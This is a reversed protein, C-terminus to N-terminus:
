RLGVRGRISTNQQLQRLAQQEGRQAGQMAAQQMGRQFQDATVYDVSNIREVTYRVDIAGNVPTANGGAESTDGGSGAIVGEGRAGRSYRSMAASMKSSPIVYESEGGEGIIANTPGTVFGGQAMLSPMGFATAGGADFSSFANSGGFGAGGAGFGGGGGLAGGFIKLAQQLVFMQIMKTIIQAAMDLFHDAVSQFFSALAEKATMSGDIIGKFSDSFATGISEAAKTVQNVPDLLTNLEGQVKTIEERTRSLPSAAAEAGQVATVAKTQVNGRVAGLQGFAGGKGFVGEDELFKKILPDKALESLKAILADVTATAVSRAAEITQLEAALGPLVGTNILNSYTQKGEVLKTQEQTISNLQTLLASSPSLIQEALAIDEQKLANIRKLNVIQKEYTALQEAAASEAASANGTTDTRAPLAAMGPLKSVPVSAFLEVLKQRTSEIENINLVAADEVLKYFVKDKESVNPDAGFKQARIGEVTERLKLVNLAALQSSKEADFKRRSAADNQKNIAENIRAIKIQSDENLRAIRRANDIKARLIALDTKQLQLQIQKQAAAADQEVALRGTRYQNVATQVTNLLEANPDGSLAANVGGTLSRQKNVLQAAKIEEDQVRKIYDLDQERMKIRADQLRRIAALDDDAQARSADRVMDQYQQEYQRKADAVKRNHDKIANALETASALALTQEQEIFTRNKTTLQQQLKSRLKATGTPADRRLAEQAQEFKLVREKAAAQKQAIVLEEKSKGFAAAVITNKATEIKLLNNEAVIQKNLEALQNQYEVNTKRAEEAVRDQEAAVGPILRVVQGIGTLVLNFAKAILQVGELIMTIVGIFPSALLGLLTGVTTTVGSWAGQLENVKTTVLETGKGGVDGTQATLAGAALQEAKGFNGQAKALLVQKELEATFLIGQERIASYNGAALVFANGLEQVKQVAMDLFQGIASGGISGAFGGLIGGVAGGAITGPGGGMLAPFGGGIVASGLKSSPDSLQERFSPGKSKQARPRMGPSNFFGPEKKRELNLAVQAAKEDLMANTEQVRRMELSLLARELQKAGDREDAVAKEKQRALSVAAKTGGQLAKLEDAAAQQKQQALAVASKTGDQLAKLEDAAAQQKQQALAVASKTGGQLAKLEDAAAQQKQQALAVAAKTGGQLAKLEDAAAQQKQQALAVAAKTGMAKNIPSDILDVAGRIPSSAGFQQKAIRANERSEDKLLRLRRILIDNFKQALAYKNTGANVKFSEFTKEAKATNLGLAKFKSIEAAFGRLKEQSKLRATELRNVERSYEVIRGLETAAAQVGQVSGKDKFFTFAKQIDAIRGQFQKQDGADTRSLAKLRRGYLDVAANLRLQKLLQSETNQNILRQGKVVGDVAKIEGQRAVRLKSIAGSVLSEEFTGGVDLKTLEKLQKSLATIRDQLAKVKQEGQVILNIRAEYSSAV